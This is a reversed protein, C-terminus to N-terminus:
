EPYVIDFIKYMEDIAWKPLDIKAKNNEYYEKATDGFEYGMAM